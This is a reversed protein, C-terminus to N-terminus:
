LVGSENEIAALDVAGGGDLTRFIDVLRDAFGELGHFREVSEALDSAIKQCAAPKDLLAAIRAALAVPDAGVFSLQDAYDGFLSIFSPNNTVVPVGAALSELASKDMAPVARCSVTITSRAYLAPMDTGPVGGRFTVRDALGLAAAERKLGAVYERDAPYFPEGAIELVPQGPHDRLVPAGLARITLEVQKLPTIRAAFAILPPRAPPVNAARLRAVDIGHGIVAPRSDAVPYSDASATIPLDILRTALRLARTRGHSTYWLTLPRRRLKCFPWALLAFAPVMHAFVVDVRGRAFLRFLHWLLRVLVLPRSDSESRRLPVVTVNAPLDHRRARAALVTVHECRAAIAAAWDHAVRMNSSNPDLEQTILLVNM